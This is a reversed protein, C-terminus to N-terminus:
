EPLEVAAEPSEAKKPAKKADPNVSVDVIEGAPIQTVEPIEDYKVVYVPDKGPGNAYGDRCYLIDKIVPGGEVTPDGM